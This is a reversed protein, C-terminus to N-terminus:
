GTGNWLAWAFCESPVVGSLLEGILDDGKSPAVRGHKIWDVGDVISWDYDFCVHIVLERLDHHVFYFRFISLIIDHEYACTFMKMRMRM